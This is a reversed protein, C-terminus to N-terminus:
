VHVCMCLLLLVLFSLSFFFRVKLVMPIEEASHLAVSIMVSEGSHTFLRTGFVMFVDYVFFTVLILAGM